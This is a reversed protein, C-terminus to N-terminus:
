IPRIKARRFMKRCQFIIAEKSFIISAIMRVFVTEGNDEIGM